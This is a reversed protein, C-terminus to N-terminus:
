RSRSMAATTGLVMTARVTAIATWVMANPKVDPSVSKVTNSPIVLAREQYKMIRVTLRRIKHISMNCDLATYACCEEHHIEGAILVNLLKAARSGYVCVKSSLAIKQKNPAKKVNICVLRNMGFDPLLLVSRQTRPAIGKNGNRALWMAVDLACECTGVYSM